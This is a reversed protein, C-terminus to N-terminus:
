FLVDFSHGYNESTLYWDILNKKGQTSVLKSFIIIQKFLLVSECFKLSLLSVFDTDRIKKIQQSLVKRTKIKFLMNTFNFIHKTLQRSKISFFIKNILYVRDLFTLAGRNKM